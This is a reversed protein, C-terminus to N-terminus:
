KSACYFAASIRDGEFPLNGHLQQPDFLLLDGPKFAIAIRWRLLILEGGSFHGMPLLCTMAGRLNGTDPHYATRFKKAIYITTFATNGLRCQPTKEVEARQFVYFTPAHKAYQADVLEILPWNEELMEPHRTTLATKRQDVYGLLGQRAKLVREVGVHVGSRPSPAGDESTYRHLSVTGSAAVRNSVTDNVKEWLPYAIKRLARPIVGCLLVATISGDPAIVTTDHDITLAANLRHPPKGRRKAAAEKYDEELQLTQM